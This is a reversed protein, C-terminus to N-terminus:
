EEEILIDDILERLEMFSKELGLGRIDSAFKKLENEKGEEELVMLRNFIDDVVALKTKDSLVDIVDGLTREQGAKREAGAAEQNGGMLTNMQAIVQQHLSEGRPLPPGDLVSDRDRLERLTADLEATRSDFDARSQPDDLLNDASNIDQGEVDAEQKTEAPNNPTAVELRQAMEGLEARADGIVRLQHELEEREALGLSQGTGSVDLESNGQVTGQSNSRGVSEETSGGSKARENDIRDQILQLVGARAEDRQKVSIRGEILQLVGRRAEQQDSLELAGDDGVNMLSSRVTQLATDATTGDQVIEDIPIAPIANPMRASTEDGESSPPSTGLLSNESSNSSTKAKNREAWSGLQFGPDEIASIQALTEHPGSGSKQSNKGPIIKKLIQLYENFRSGRTGVNEPDKASIVRDPFTGRAISSLGVLPINAAEAAM